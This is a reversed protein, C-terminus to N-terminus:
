HVQKKVNLLIGLCINNRGRNKIIHNQVTFYTFGMVFSHIMLTELSSYWFTQDAVVMTRLMPFQGTSKLKNSRLPLHFQQPISVQTVRCTKNTTKFIIYERSFYRYPQYHPVSGLYDLNMDELTIIM